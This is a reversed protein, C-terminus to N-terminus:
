LRVKVTKVRGKVIYTENEPLSITATGHEAKVSKVLKGDVSYVAIQEGDEVGQVSITNGFATVRMKSEVRNQVMTTNGKEFSVNLISNETIAPTTFINNSSLETTVDQGNFNVSHIHWGDAAEIQYRYAMGKEVQQKVCGGDAYQITVYLPSLAFTVVFEFDEKIQAITYSNNYLDDTIDNGNLMVSQIEYGEDPSITLTISQNKSVSIRETGNSVVQNGYVIKGGNNGSITLMFSTQQGNEKINVFDKWGDCSLYKNLTGDPITLTAQTYVNDAFVNKVM